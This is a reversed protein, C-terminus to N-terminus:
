DAAGANVATVIASRAQALTRDPLNPLAAVRAKLDALTTAAATAAKFATDWQRLANLEDVLVKVVARLVRSEGTPADLGAADAGRLDGALWTAYAAADGPNWAALIAAGAQRQAATAEPRYDIRPPEACVGATPIAQADCLGQLWLAKETGTM